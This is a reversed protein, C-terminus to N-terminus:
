GLGTSLVPHDRPRVPQDASSIPLHLKLSFNQRLLVHVCLHMCEILIYPLTYVYVCMVEGSSVLYSTRHIILPYKLVWRRYTLAKSINTLM